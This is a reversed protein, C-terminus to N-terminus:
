KPAVVTSYFSSTSTEAGTRDKIICFSDFFLALYVIFRILQEYEEQSMGVPGSRGDSSEAVRILADMTSKLYQQVDQAGILWVRHQTSSRILRSLFAEEELCSMAATCALQDM